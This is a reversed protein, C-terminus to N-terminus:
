SNRRQTTTSAADEEWWIESARKIIPDDEPLGLSRAMDAIEHVKEQTETWGSVALTTIALTGILLIAAM